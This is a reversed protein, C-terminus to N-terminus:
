APVEALRKTLTEPTARAIGRVGVEEIALSACAVGWRLAERLTEPRGGTERWRALM